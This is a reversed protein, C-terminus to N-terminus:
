ETLQHDIADTLERLTTTQAQALEHYKDADRECKVVFRDYLMTVHQDKRYAIIIAIVTIVPMGGKSLLELLLGEM